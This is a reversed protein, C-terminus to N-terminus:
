PNSGYARRDFAEQKRGYEAIATREAEDIRRLEEEDTVPAADSHQLVGVAIAQVDEPNLSLGFYSLWPELATMARLIEPETLERKM